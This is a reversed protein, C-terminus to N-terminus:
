LHWCELCGCAGSQLTLMEHSYEWTFNTISCMDRIKLDKDGHISYVLILHGKETSLTRVHLTYLGNVYQTDSALKSDKMTHHKMNLDDPNHHWTTNHYSILMESTWAAEM